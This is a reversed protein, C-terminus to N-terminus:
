QLVCWYGVQVGYTRHPRACRFILKLTRKQAARLGFPDSLQDIIPRGLQAFAASSLRLTTQKQQCSAITRREHRLLFLFDLHFTRNFTLNWQMSATILKTQSSDKKLIVQGLEKKSQFISKLTTRTFCVIFM